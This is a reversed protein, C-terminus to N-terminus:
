AAVSSSCSGARPLGVASELQRIQMSVAPQSLHLEKAARTFSQQRAVSEFVQLQRFTLHM